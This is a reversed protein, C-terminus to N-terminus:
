YQREEYPDGPMQCMVLKRRPTPHGEWVLHSAPAQQQQQCEMWTARDLCHCNPWCLKKIERMERVAREPPILHPSIQEWPLAPVPGPKEPSPGTSLQFIWPHLHCLKKPNGARSGWWWWLSITKKWRSSHPTIHTTCLPVIGSGSRQATCRNIRGLLQLIGKGGLCLACSWTSWTMSLSTVPRLVSVQLEGEVQHQDRPPSCSVWGSQGVLKKSTQNLQAGTKKKAM